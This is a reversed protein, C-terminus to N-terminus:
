KELWTLNCIKVLNFVSVYFLVECDDLMFISLLENHLEQKKDEFWSQKRILKYEDISLKRQTQSYYKLMGYAIQLAKDDLNNAKPLHFFPGCATYNHHSM